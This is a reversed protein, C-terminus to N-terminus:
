LRQEVWQRVSGLAAPVNAPETGGAQAMDPRGGGKGGVQQAVYNVLEGAKLKSTLDSTVGAILSVKGGETSGLVIAASKLKNKLQDLTERLTKPDAGDLTVALVKVGKVDVAQSSLDEGQASAMKSVATEKRRGRENTPNNRTAAENSLRRFGAVQLASLLLASRALTSRRMAPM